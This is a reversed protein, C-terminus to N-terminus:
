YVLLQLDMSTKLLTVWGPGSIRCCDQKAALAKSDFCGHLAGTPGEGILTSFTCNDVRDKSERTAHSYPTSTSFPQRTM